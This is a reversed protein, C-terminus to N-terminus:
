SRFRWNRVDVSAKSDQRLTFAVPSHTLILYYRYSGKPHGKASADESSSCKDNEDDENTVVMRDVLTSGDKNVPRSATFRSEGPIEEDVTDSLWVSVETM